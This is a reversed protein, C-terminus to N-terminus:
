DIEKEEVSNVVALAYKFAQQEVLAQRSCPKNNRADILAQLKEVVEDKSIYKMDKRGM